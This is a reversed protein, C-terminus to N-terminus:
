EETHALKLHRGCELARSDDKRKSRDHPDAALLPPAHSSTFSLAVANTKVIAKSFGTVRTNATTSARSLAVYAQGEEFVGSLDMEVLTLTMGQSKHITIAWGLRLPMQTVTAMGRDDMLSWQYPMIRREFVTKGSIFRVVPVMRHKDLFRGIEGGVTGDVKEFRVVVGRTGNSMKDTVNVNATLMVQSGEKIGIADAAPSGQELANLMSECGQSCKGIREYYTAPKEITAQQLANERDVDANHSYLKTPVIGEVVDLPRSLRNIFLEDEPTCEGMRIRTLVQIFEREDQRFIDTLTHHVFQCEDWLCVGDADSEFAFQTKPVPKDCCFDGKKNCAWCRDDAVPPLQLPDGVVVLQVGGFPLTNGRVACMIKHLATFVRLCTMSVEDIILIDTNRIRWGPTNPIRSIRKVNKIIDNLPDRLLGMGAYRNITMGGVNVAAIGTPAVTYVRKGKIAKIENIVHSKGTGAMGLVCTNKNSRVADLICVQRPSLM